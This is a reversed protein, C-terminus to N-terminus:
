LNYQVCPVVVSNSTFFIRIASLLVLLKEIWQVNLLIFFDMDNLVKSTELRTLM